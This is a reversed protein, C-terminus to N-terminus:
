IAAKDLYIDCVVCSVKLTYNLPKSHIWLITCGDDCWNLVNENGREGLGGDGDATM